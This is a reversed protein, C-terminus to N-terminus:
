VECHRTVAFGASDVIKSINVLSKNECLRVYSDDTLFSQSQSIRIM